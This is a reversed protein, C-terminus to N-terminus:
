KQGVHRLIASQAIILYMTTQNLRVLINLCTGLVTELILLKTIYTDFIISRFGFNRKTVVTKIYSM